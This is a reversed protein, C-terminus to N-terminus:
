LSGRLDLSLEAHQFGAPRGQPPRARVRPRGVRSRRCARPRRQLECGRAPLRAHFRGGDVHRNEFLGGGGASRLLRGAEVGNLRLIEAALESRGSFEEEGPEIGWINWGLGSRAHSLFFGYGSGVELIRSTRPDIGVREFAQVYYDA